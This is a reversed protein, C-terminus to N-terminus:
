GRYLMIDKDKNISSKIGFNNNLATLLGNVDDIKYFGGIRVDKIDEDEITIKVATYRSIEKLVQELTEGEFIIIGRQWSLENILNQSDITEIKKDDGELVVRKGSSITLPLFTNKDQNNSNSDEKGNDMPASETGSLSVIGEAVLVEVMDSSKFHINFATGIATVYRGAVAVNFPRQSDKAVNFYAEGKVLRLNRAASSYDVQIESDTNLTVISGDDLSITKQEGVSTQYNNAILEQNNKEFFGKVSDFGYQFGFIVSVVLVIAAANAIVFRPSYTKEPQPKWEEIPYLKSLEGLADMEDWLVAIKWLTERHRPSQSLWQHFDDDEREDLGRSLRTLWLSAEENIKRQNPFFILKSM